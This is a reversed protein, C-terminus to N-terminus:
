TARTDAVPRILLQRWSGSRGGAELSQLVAHESQEDGNTEIRGRRDGRRQEV